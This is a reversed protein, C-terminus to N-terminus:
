ANGTDQSFIKMTKRLEEICISNCKRPGALVAEQWSRGLNNSATYYWEAGQMYTPIVAPTSFYGMGVHMCVYICVYM